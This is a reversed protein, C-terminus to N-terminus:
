GVSKCVTIDKSSCGKFGIYDESNGEYAYVTDKHYSVWVACIISVLKKLETKEIDKQFRPNNVFIEKTVKTDKRTEISIVVRMNLRAAAIAANLINDESVYLKHEDGTSLNLEVLGSEHLEKLKNYAVEESTAWFGNTVCRSHMGYNRAYQIGKKLNKGLLFCEGGSWIIFKVGFENHVQEIFQTIEKYTLMRDNDPSCEFCCEPCAATCKFTTLVVGQVPKVM